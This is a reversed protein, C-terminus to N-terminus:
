NSSTASQSQTQSAGNGGTQQNPQQGTPQGTQTPPYSVGDLLVEVDINEQAQQLLQQQNRQQISAELRPRVDELSPVSPSSTGSQQEIQTTYQDYLQQIQQDTTTGSAQQVYSQILLQQRINDRVEKRSVDNDSLQNQFQEEGGVQEIRQQLRSDVDGDSVSVGANEAAAKLLEQNIIGSLILEQQRTESLSQFQQAQTSTSGQLAQLQQEFPEREVPEGAVRAVPGSDSTMGSEGDTDGFGDGFVYVGAVALIILVIIILVPRWMSPQNGSPQSTANNGSQSSANESGENDHSEESRQIDM